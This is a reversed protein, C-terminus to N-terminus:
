EGEMEYEKNIKNQEFDSIVNVRNEGWSVAAEYFAEEETEFIFGSAYIEDGDEDDVRLEWMFDEEGHEFLEKMKGNKRKAIINRKISM